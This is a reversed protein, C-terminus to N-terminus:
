ELDDDYEEEYENGDWDEEEFEGEEPVDDEYPEYYGSTKLRRREEKEETDRERLWIGQIVSFLILTTMVSSGGYSILPLTVGTLPIFKTGGGITLFIQFIYMVGFGSVVLRFFPDSSAGAIKLIMFFCSICILIIGIAFVIGLEETIAAFIFDTEVFPIDKPTGQGIGLGFWSGRSMAFLSQTIQYGQNDIVSWPDQWAQVRVKVHSFLLFALYSAACGAAGGALLYRIKGTAFFVLFVYAAFFILASGLDKSLVLILVHAAAVAGSIVINKLSSDEWLIAAICFLFLIKVFESPQFTIGGLSFSLKSGHTVQGLILVVGLATIGVSCLGM